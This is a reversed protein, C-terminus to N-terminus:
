EEMSICNFKLGTVYYSLLYKIGLITDNDLHIGSRTKIRVIATRCSKWSGPCIIEDSVKIDVSDVGDIGSFITEFENMREELVRRWIFDGTDDREQGKDQLRSDNSGGNVNEKFKRSSHDITGLLTPVIYKEKHEKM